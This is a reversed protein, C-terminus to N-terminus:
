ACFLSNLPSHTLFNQAAINTIAMFTKPETVNWACFQFAFLFVLLMLSLLSTTDISDFSKRLVEELVLSLSFSIIIHVRSSFISKQWFLSFTIIKLPMNSPPFNAGVWFTFLSYFCLAILGRSPNRNTLLCGCFYSQWFYVAYLLSIHTFRHDSLCAYDEEILDISASVEFQSICFNKFEQWVIVLPCKKRECFLSLIEIPWLFFTYLFSLCCNGNRNCFQGSPLLVKLRFGSYNGTYFFPKKQFLTLLSLSFCSSHRNQTINLFSFM